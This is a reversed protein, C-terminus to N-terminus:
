PRLTVAACCLWPNTVSPAGAVALTFCAPLGVKLPNILNGVSVVLQSECVLIGESHLGELSYMAALLLVTFLLVGAVTLAGEIPRGKFEQQISGSIMKPLSEAENPHLM